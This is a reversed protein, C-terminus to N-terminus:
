YLNESYLTGGHADDGGCRRRIQQAALALQWATQRDHFEGFQDIFGQQSTRWSERPERRASIQAHMLTDFHRASVVIAGNDHRNAAAVIRRPPSAAEAHATM